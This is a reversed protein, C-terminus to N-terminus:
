YGATHLYTTQRRRYNRCFVFFHQVTAEDMDPLNCNTDNLPYIDYRHNPTKNSYKDVDDFNNAKIKNFEKENGFDDVPRNCQNGAARYKAKCLMNDLNM